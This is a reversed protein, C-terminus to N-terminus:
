PYNRSKSEDELKDALRTFLALYREAIVSLAEAARAKDYEHSLTNRLRAAAMWSDGDEIIEAAFAARISGVASSTNEGTGSEALYDRM